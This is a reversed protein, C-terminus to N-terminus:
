LPVLALSAPLTVLTPLFVEPVLDEMEDRGREKGGASPNCVDQPWLWSFYSDLDFLAVGEPPSQCCRGLVGLGLHLGEPNGTDQFNSVPISLSFSLLGM